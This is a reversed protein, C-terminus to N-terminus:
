TRHVMVMLEMDAWLIVQPLALLLFHAASVPLEVNSIPSAVDLAPGIGPDPDIKVLLFRVSFKPPEILYVAPLHRSKSRRKM